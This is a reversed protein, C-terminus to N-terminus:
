GLRAQGTECCSSGQNEPSMAGTSRSKGRNNRHILTRSGAIPTSFFSDRKVEHRERERERSRRLTDEGSREMM